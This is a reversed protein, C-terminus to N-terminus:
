PAVLKSAASWAISTSIAAVVASVVSAIASILAILWLRHERRHREAELVRSQIEYESAQYEVMGKGPDVYSDGLGISVGLEKARALLADGQLVTKTM